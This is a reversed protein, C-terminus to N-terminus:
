FVGVHMQIDVINSWWRERERARERERKRERERERERDGGERERERQRKGAESEVTTHIRWFLRLYDTLFSRFM